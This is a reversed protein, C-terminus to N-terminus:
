GEAKFGRSKDRKFTFAWVPGPLISRLLVALPGVRVFFIWVRRPPEKGARVIVQLIVEVVWARGIGDGGDGVAM